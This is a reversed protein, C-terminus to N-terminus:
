GEIRNITEAVARHWDVEKPKPPKVKEDGVIVMGREKLSKYYRSKSDYTKGDAMSKLHGGQVYDSIVNPAYGRKIPAKEIRKIEGSALASSIKEDIYHKRAWLGAGGNYPIRVNLVFDLDDQSLIKLLESEEVECYSMYWM